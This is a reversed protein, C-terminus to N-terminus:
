WCSFVVLFAATLFLITKETIELIGSYHLSMVSSLMHFIGLILDIFAFELLCLLKKNGRAIVCPNKCAERM